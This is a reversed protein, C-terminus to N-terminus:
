LGLKEALSLLHILHENVSRKGRRKRMATFRDWTEGTIGGFQQKLRWNELNRRSAAARQKRRTELRQEATGTM